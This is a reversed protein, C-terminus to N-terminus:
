RWSPERQTADNRLIPLPAIHLRQLVSFFQPQSDTVVPEKEHIGGELDDLNEANDM